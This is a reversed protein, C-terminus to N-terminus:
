GGPTEFKLYGVGVSTQDKDPFGNSLAAAKQALEVVEVTWSGNVSHGPDVAGTIINPDGSQLQIDSFGRVSALTGISGQVQSLKAELDEVLKLRSEQKVKKTEISKLPAREAEILQDVLNPPLGSALGGM